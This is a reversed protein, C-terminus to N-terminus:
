IDLASTHSWTYIVVIIDQMYFLVQSVDGVVRVAAIKTDRKKFLINCLNYKWNSM